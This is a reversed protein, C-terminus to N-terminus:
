GLELSKPIVPYLVVDRSGVNAQVHARRTHELWADHTHQFLHMCKSLLQNYQAFYPMGALIALCVLLAGGM